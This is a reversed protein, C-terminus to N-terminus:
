WEEFGNLYTEYMNKLFIDIFNMLKDNYGSFKIKYGLNEFVKISYQVDALVAEYGVLATIKEILAELYVAFYGRRQPTEFLKPLIFIIQVVSRPM